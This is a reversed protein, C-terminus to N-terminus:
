WRPVGHRRHHRAQGRRDARTRLVRGALPDLLVRPLTMGAARYCANRLRHSPVNGVEALLRLRLDSWVDRRWANARLASDPAHAKIQAKTLRM